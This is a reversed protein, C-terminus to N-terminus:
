PGFNSGCNANMYARIDAWTVRTANPGVAGNTVSTGTLGFMARIGMLGDTLPDVVGNADLDACGTPIVNGSEFAGMDTAIGAARPLGRQDFSVTAPNSGTDVAPSGATM